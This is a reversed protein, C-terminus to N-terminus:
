GVPSLKTKSLREMSLQFFSSIVEVYTWSQERCREEEVLVEQHQHRLRAVALVLPLEGGHDPDVVETVAEPQHALVVKGLVSARLPEKLNVPTINDVAFM